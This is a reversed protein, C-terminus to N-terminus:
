FSWARYPTLLAELGFPIEISVASNEAVLVAERSSYLHAALQRIAEKVPEPAPHDDDVLQGTYALVWAEAAALKSTLLADDADTTLNLHAKLDAITVIM